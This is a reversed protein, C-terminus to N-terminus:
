RSFFFVAAAMVLGFATGFCFSGARRSWLERHLDGLQKQYGLCRDVQASLSEEARYRKQREDEREKVIEAWERTTKTVKKNGPDRAAEQRKLNYKEINTLGSADRYTKHIQKHEAHSVAVVSKQRKKGRPHHPAKVASM